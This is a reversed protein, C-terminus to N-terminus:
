ALAGRSIQRASTYRGHYLDLLALSRLGNERTKPDVLLASFVQEAKADDGSEVLTFGYERNVNGATLWQPNFKFAQAYARLAEPLKGLTRYATAMAVYTAADDPAVRLIEQYRSIAEEQRNHTRLLAAYNSLAQWDDPYRTLYVRFLSDASDVHGLDMAYEAQIRLRERETTRASLSLAQDYERQGNGPDNNIYSFYMGGLAAHAMAFGPDAAVAARLLNAGDKFKGQHWLYGGETYEKLAALSSTTVEPLPRNANTFKIFRNAM